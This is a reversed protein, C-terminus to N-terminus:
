RNSELGGLDLRLETETLSQACLALVVIPGLVEGVDGPEGLAIDLGVIELCQALTKEILVLRLMSFKYEMAVTVPILLMTGDLM